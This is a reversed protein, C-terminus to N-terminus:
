QLSKKMKKDESKSVKSKAPAGRDAEDLDEDLDRLDSQSVRSATSMM